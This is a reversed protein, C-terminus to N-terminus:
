VNPCNLLLDLLVHERLVALGHVWDWHLVVVGFDHGVVVGVLVRVLSAGHDGGRLVDRGALVLLGHGVAAILLLHEFIERGARGLLGVAVHHGAHWCGQLWLFDNIGAWSLINGSLLEVGDLKLVLVEVECDLRLPGGLLVLLSLSIILFNIISSDRGLLDVCRLGWM